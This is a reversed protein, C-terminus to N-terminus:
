SHGWGQVQGHPVKHDLQGNRYSYLSKHDIDREFKNNCEEEVTIREKGSEGECTKRGVREKEGM